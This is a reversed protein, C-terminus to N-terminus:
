GARVLEPHPVAPKVDDGAQAAIIEARDVAVNTLAAMIMEATQEAAEAIPLRPRSLTRHGLGFMLGLLIEEAGQQSKESLKPNAITALERIFSRYRGCFDAIRDAVDPNRYAEALIEFSLAEETKTLSRTTLEVFVQRIPIAGSKARSLLADFEATKIEVDESVIALIVDKKDEFLRYIQGVSVNSAIALESVPTQHFGQLTFLRRAAGLIRQRPTSHGPAPPNLSQQVAVL